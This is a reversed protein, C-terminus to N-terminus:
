PRGEDDLAARLRELGRALQVKVTGASVGMVRATEAVSLDELVRLVVTARQGAPLQALAGRLREREAVREDFGVGAPELRTVVREDHRRRVSARRFRGRTQNVVARRLYAAPDDIRDRRWRVFMGAFADAVIDEASGTDGTLLYALRLAARHHTAFTDVFERAAGSEVVTRAPASGEVGM